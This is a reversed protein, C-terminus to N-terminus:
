SQLHLEERNMTNANTDRQRLKELLHNFKVKKGELTISIWGKPSKLSRAEKITLQNFFPMGEILQNLKKGPLTVLITEPLQAKIKLVNGSMTWQTEILRANITCNEIDFKIDHDKFEAIAKEISILGQSRDSSNGYINELDASFKPMLQEALSLGEPYELLFHACLPSVMIPKPTGDKQIRSWNSNIQNVMFMKTEREYINSLGLDIPYRTDIVHQRGILDVFQALTRFSPNMGMSEEIIYGIVPDYAPGLDTIVKAIQASSAGHINIVKHAITEAWHISGTGYHHHLVHRKEDKIVVTEIMDVNKSSLWEPMPIFRVECQLGSKEIALRIRRLLRCRKLPKDM